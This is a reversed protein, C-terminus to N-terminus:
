ATKMIQHLIIVFITYNEANQLNGARKCLVLDVTHIGNLCEGGVMPHPHLIIVFITYNEANQLNGARKCLVGVM